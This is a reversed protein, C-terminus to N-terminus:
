IRSLYLVVLRSRHETGTNATAQAADILNTLNVVNMLRRHRSHDIAGVVPSIIDVPFTVFPANTLHETVRSVDSEYIKNMTEPKSPSAPALTFVKQIRDGYM